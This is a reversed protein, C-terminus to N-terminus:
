ELKRKLVAIREVKSLDRSINCSFGMSSALNSLDKELYSDIELIVRGQSRLHSSAYKLLDEFFGIPNELFVAHLPEFLKVSQDVDNFSEYDVYPPNSVILDFLGNEPLDEELSLRCEVGFKEANYRTCLQGVHSIEVAIGQSKTQELLLSVCIAGSGSGFDLFSSFPEKLALEVLLETENRPIFVGPLVYFDRGFFAEFGTIYAFPVNEQLLYVVRRLEAKDVSIDKNLVVDTKSINFVYTILNYITSDPTSLSASARLTNFLDLAKM